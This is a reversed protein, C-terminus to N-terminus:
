KEANLEEIEFHGGGFQERWPGWPQGDLEVRTALMTIGLPSVAMGGDKWIGFPPKDEFAVAISRQNASIIWVFGLAAQDPSGHPYVRVTDGTQIMDARGM